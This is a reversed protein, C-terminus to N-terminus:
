IFVDFRFVENGKYPPQNISLESEYEAIVIVFPSVM